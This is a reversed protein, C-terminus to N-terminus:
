NINRMIFYLKFYIIVFKISQHFILFINYNILFTPNAHFILRSIPKEKAAAKLTAIIATEVGLAITGLGQTITTTSTTSTSQSAEEINEQIEEVFGEEGQAQAEEGQVQEGQVEQGQAQEEQVQEEQAQEEECNVKIWSLNLDLHVAKLMFNLTM